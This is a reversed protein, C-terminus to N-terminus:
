NCMVSYHDTIINLNILSPCDDTVMLSLPLSSPSSAALTDNNYHSSVISSKCYVNAQICTYKKDAAATVAYTVNVSETKNRYCIRLFNGSFVAPCLSSLTLSKGEGGGREREESYTKGRERGRVNYLSRQGDHTIKGVLNIFNFLSLLVYCSNLYVCVCVFM